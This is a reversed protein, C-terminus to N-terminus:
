ICYISHLVGTNVDMAKNKLGTHLSLSHLTKWRFGRWCRMQPFQAIQKKTPFSKSFYLMVDNVWCHISQLSHTGDSYSDLCSIFVDCYDVLLGCWDLGDTLMKLLCFSHTQLSCIWWLINKVEFLQKRSFVLGYDMIIVAEETFFIDRADFDVWM